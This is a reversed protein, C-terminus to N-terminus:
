TMAFLDCNNKPLTSLPSTFNGDQSLFIKVPSNNFTQLHTEINNICSQLIEASIHTGMYRYKYIEVLEEIEIKNAYSVIYHALKPGIEFNFKDAIQM